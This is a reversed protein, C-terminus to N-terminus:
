LNIKKSNEYTEKNMECINLIKKLEFVTKENLWFIVDKNNYNKNFNTILYILSSKIMENGYFIIDDSLIMLSNNKKSLLCFKTQPWLNFALALQESNKFESTYINAYAINDFEKIIEIKNDYSYFGLCVKEM